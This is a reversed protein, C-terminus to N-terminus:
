AQFRSPALLSADFRETKGDVILDAAIQGIIPSTEIGCGGQGALWFFGRVRRDEGVVHVRDPSFTRLGSWRRRLTRPVIAPALTGLRALGEAIVREDPQPDCPEMPDEDMPSLKLGGSEPAFYLRDADSGVMPWTRADVPVDFVVITRRHPVLPIASAEALTAVRGAWAGAADVVWRAAVTGTDTVVGTARGAEVRVARVEVGFRQEVGRRRAHGLYGWLLGHVDIHGDNPVLAAGDFREPLLVPVRAVADVPSLLEVRTGGEVILPAAQRFASWAPERFLAMVGSPELLPSESFGAPPDRLFTASLVKLRQLTPNADLEALVAASRGTAHHGPQDERELLLVDTVGREALFYALSAGAIGGGVIVVEFRARGDM